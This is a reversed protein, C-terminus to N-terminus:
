IDPFMCFAIPVISHICKDFGRAPDRRAWCSLFSTGRIYLKEITKKLMKMWCWTTTKRAPSVVCFNPERFVFLEGRHSSETPHKSRSCPTRNPLSCMKGNLLIIEFILHKRHHNNSTTDKTKRGWFAFRTKFACLLSLTM